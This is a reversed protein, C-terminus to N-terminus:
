TKANTHVPSFPKSIFWVTRKAGKKKKQIEAQILRKPGLRGSEPGLQGLETCIPGLRLRTPALWSFVRPIWTARRPPVCPCRRGRRTVGDRRTLRLHPVLVEPAADTSWLNFSFLFPLSASVCLACLCTLSSIHPSTSLKHKPMQTFQAFTPNLYLDFPANQVKKKEKKKQIEAQIPRLQGSEVCIPGLRLWTPALRSFAHPIWTARRPTGLADGRRVRTRCRQHWTRAEYSLVWVIGFQM